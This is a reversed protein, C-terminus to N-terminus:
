KRTVVGNDYTRIEEPDSSGIVEIRCVFNLLISMGIGIAIAGCFGFVIATTKAIAIMPVLMAGLPISIIAMILLLRQKKTWQPKPQGSPRGLNMVLFEIGLVIIPVLMAAFPLNQNM